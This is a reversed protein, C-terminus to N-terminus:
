WSFGGQVAKNKKKRKTPKILIYGLVAGLSMSIGLTIFSKNDQIVGNITLLIGGVIMGAIIMALGVSITKKSKKM